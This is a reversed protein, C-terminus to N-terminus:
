YEGWPKGYFTTDNLEELYELHIHFLTFGIFNIQQKELWNDGHRM